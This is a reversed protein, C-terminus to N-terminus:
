EYFDVMDEIGKGILVIVRDRHMEIPHWYRYMHSNKGLLHGGTTDRAAEPMEFRYRSGAIKTRYFAIWGAMRDTDMCVLTPKEGTKREFTEVVTEIKQALGRLGSRTPHPTCESNRNLVFSFPNPYCGTLIQGWRCQM